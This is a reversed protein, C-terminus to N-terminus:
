EKVGSVFLWHSAWYPHHAEGGLDNYLLQVDYFWHAVGTLHKSFDETVAPLNRLGIAADCWGNTGGADLRDECWDAHYTAPRRVSIERGLFRFSRGRHILPYDPHFALQICMVGSPKLSAALLGLIRNRITRVAIHQIAITSYVFDYSAAPAEGIDDGSSLYFQSGPCLERATDLLRQSIDVGDVRGFYKGMRKVMRGPGCAFDLATRNRLNDLPAILPFRLDGNRHLLQTEYPFQEHWQYNGVVDEPPHEGNYFTKQMLKYQGLSM